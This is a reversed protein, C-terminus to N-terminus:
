ALMFLMKMIHQNLNNFLNPCDTKSDLILKYKPIDYNFQM